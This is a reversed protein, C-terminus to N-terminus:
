KACHAELSFDSFSLFSIACDPDALYSGAGSRSM